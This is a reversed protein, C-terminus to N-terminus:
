RLPNIRSSALLFTGSRVGAEAEGLGMAAFPNFAREVHRDTARLVGIHEFMTPSCHDVVLPLAEM